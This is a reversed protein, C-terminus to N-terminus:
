VPRRQACSGWPPLRLPLVELGKLRLWAAKCLCGAMVGGCAAVSQLHRNVAYRLQRPPLCPQAHQCASGARGRRASRQEDRPQVRERGCGRRRLM